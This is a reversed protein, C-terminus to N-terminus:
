QTLPAFPMTNQVPQAQVSVRKDLLLAYEDIEFLVTNLDIARLATIDGVLSSELADTEARVADADLDMIAVIDVNNGLIWIGIGIGFILVIAMISKTSFTGM